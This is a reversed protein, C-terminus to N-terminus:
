KVYKERENWSTKIEFQGKELDTTEQYDVYFVLFHVSGYNYLQYKNM